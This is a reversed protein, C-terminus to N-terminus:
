NLQEDLATIVARPADWHVLAGADKLFRVRWNPKDRLADALDYPSFADEGFIALCPHPLSRYVAFINPTFLLFSIFALPAYEAGPQHSTAYAYDVLGQKLRTRQNSQLFFRLSPRSTLVDYIARRWPPLRLLWWLPRNARIRQSRRSFGTPSLFSLSRFYAPKCQAALALFESSLSLAVADVRAGALEQEILDLIADRFLAPRYLRDSRDSFGFGPLDLAIVRRAQAYHEFLPKMEFASGSANISHLLLLPPRGDHAPGAAYYALNGARRGRFRMLEGRLAATLPVGHNVQTRSWAILALWLSLKATFMAALIPLIARPRATVQSEESNQAFPQAAM